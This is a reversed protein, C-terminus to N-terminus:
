LFKRRIIFKDAAELIESTKSQRERFVSAKIVIRVECSLTGIGGCSAPMPSSPTVTM